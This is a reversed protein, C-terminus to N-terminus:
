CGSLSSFACLLFSRLRETQACLITAVRDLYLASVILKSLVCSSRPQSIRFDDSGDMLPSVHRSILTESVRSEFFDFASNYLFEHIVFDRNSRLWRILSFDPGNTEWPSISLESIPLLSTLPGGVEHFMFDRYAFFSILVTPDHPNHVMSKASRFIPIEPNRPRSLRPSECAFVRYVFDRCARKILRTTVTM